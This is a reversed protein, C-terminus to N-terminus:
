ATGEKVPTVQCRPLARNWLELNFLHVSFGKSWGTRPPGQLLGKSHGKLADALASFHVPELNSLGILTLYRMPKSPIGSDLGLFQLSHIFKPYLEEDILLKSEIREFFEQRNREQHELPITPNEPNKVEILWFEDDWEVVFDVAKLIHSLGHGKGHNDLSIVSIAGSFDFYLGSEQWESNM